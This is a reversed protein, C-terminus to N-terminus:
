SVEIVVANSYSITGTTFEYFVAQLSVSFPVNLAPITLSWGGTVIPTPAPAPTSPLLGPGLGLNDAFLFALPDGVFGAPPMSFVGLGPFNFAQASSPIGLYGFVAFPIPDTVLSPNTLRVKVDDILALEVMRDLGGVQDNVTLNDHPGGEIMNAALGTSGAGIGSAISTAYPAFPDPTLFLTLNDAYGDNASGAIRTCVLTVIVTRTGVPVAGTTAQHVLATVFGRGAALVPGITASALLAGLGNQFEVSVRANDDQNLYGGLWAGLDYAVGGADIAAAGSSVDITQAATSVAVFGGTFNTRGRNAPGPDTPSMWGSIAGLVYDAPIIDGSAIWEPLVLPAINGDLGGRAEGGGNRVLNPSQAWLMSPLVLLLAAFNSRPM